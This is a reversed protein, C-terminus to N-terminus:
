ISVVTVQACDEPVIDPDNTKEIVVVILLPTFFFKTVFRFDSFCLILVSAASSTFAMCTPKFLFTMAYDIRAVPTDAQSELFHHVIHVAYEIAFGSAFLITM